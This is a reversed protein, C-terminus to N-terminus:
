SNNKALKPLVMQFIPISSPDATYLALVRGATMDSQGRDNSMPEQFGTRWLPIGAVVTLRTEPTVGVTRELSDSPKDAASQDSIVLFSCTATFTQSSPVAVRGARGWLAAGNLRSGGYSHASRVM